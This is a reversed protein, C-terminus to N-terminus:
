SPDKDREQFETDVVRAQAPTPEPDSDNVINQVAGVVNAATAVGRVQPFVVSLVTTVVGLITAGSKITSTVRERDWRKRRRTAEELGIAFEHLTDLFREFRTM